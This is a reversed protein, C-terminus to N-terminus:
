DVIAAMEEEQRKRLRHVTQRMKTTMTAWLKADLRRPM